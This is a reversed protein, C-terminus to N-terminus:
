IEVVESREDQTACTIKNFNIDYNALTQYITKLAKDPTNNVESLHILLVKKTNPGILKSLYFGAANNSLHGEDSLVRKKLWKPYPGNELMEIDHNAEFLYLDLNKLMDFYRQNLYGTDTIYAVKNIGDSVIFNRSDVADHSSKFSKVELEDINFSDEVIHIHTYDHLDKLDGFIKESVCLTAHSKNLVQKLSARHDSHTYSLFIFDIDKIDINIEELKSEIYKLNRGTDLLINHNITGIFTSNGKSGSSLNCVKM